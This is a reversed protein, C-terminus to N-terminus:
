NCSQSQENKCYYKLAGGDTVHCQLPRLLEMPLRCGEDSGSSTDQGVIFGSKWGGCEKRRRGGILLCM